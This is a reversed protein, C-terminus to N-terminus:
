LQGGKAAAPTLRIPSTRNRSWLLGFTLGGVLLGFMIGAIAGVALNVFANPRMPRVPPDALDVLEAHTQECYTRAIANAIDAAHVPSTAFFRIEILPTNRVHVLQMANRLHVAIQEAQTSEEGVLRDKWLTQLDAEQSVQKLFEPSELWAFDAQLRYPDSLGDDGLKIRATAEYTPPMLSTITAALAFVALGALMAAIASRAFIARWSLRAKQPVVAKLVSQGSEGVATETQASERGGAGPPTTAITEVQTKFVSAQQYRLEPNKELARLVVEDLRVDIHVKRSPPEIRKGPLEGTLMQYFVVGLAYIDARHDVEGPADIQEPSMYHPTGMVKGADTLAPSGEGPKAVREGDSPTLPQNGGVIKALGFDAVKVRGRRDLLVNEPKIDRHVIGQDHAFQLADCIQPVIALTERASVRGTHMLQRLNVGDVFEMLFFYLPPQPTDSSPRSASGGESGPRPASHADDNQPGAAPLPTRARAVQGFEYLTVIGPHNLSALAQAERTFRAAFAPEHGVDPPLIKLAVLRNLQTQRAKYVAGMGGKGILELIELKPFLPALEAVAPPVFGTRIADPGTEMGIEVGSGIGAKLLCEPCLGEPASAPLAKGCLTCIPKTDM